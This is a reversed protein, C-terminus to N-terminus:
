PGGQQPQRASFQRVCKWIRDFGRSDLDPQYQLSVRRPPHLDSGQLLDDRVRRLDAGFKITHNGLNKTWTNVIDVNAEARVWPLSASYGILPTTFTNDINIGVQGSTFPNINVGPIGLKTADNDNNQLFEYAAGHFANGGSKLIVNTV